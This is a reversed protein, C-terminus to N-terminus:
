AAQGLVASAPPCDFLSPHEDPEEPEPLPLSSKALSMRDLVYVKCRQRRGGDDFRIGDGELDKVRAALRTIPAGGGIVGPLMFDVQTVGRDGASLAARLVRQTQSLTEISM